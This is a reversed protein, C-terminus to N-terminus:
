LGVHSKVWLSFLMVRIDTHVQAWDIFEAIPMIVRECRENEEDNGFFQGEDLQESKIRVFALYSRENTLGPCLAVPAEHNLFEIQNARVNVGAEEKSEAIILDVLDVDRDFRGAVPGLSNGPPNLQTRMAPRNERVLVIEDTDAVYILVAVSNTAKAVEFGTEDDKLLKIFKPDKLPKFSREDLEYMAETIVEPTPTRLM